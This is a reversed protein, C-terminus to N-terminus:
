DTTELIGKVSAARMADRIAQPTKGAFKGTADLFAALNTLTFPQQFGRIAVAAGVGGLVSGSAVGGGGALVDILGIVQKNATKHAKDVINEFAEIYVREENMLTAIRPDKALKRRLFDAASKFQDQKKNLDQDLKFSSTSRMDDIFRRLRLATIKTMQQPPAENVEKLLARAIRAKGRFFGVKFKDIVDNQLFQIYSKKNPVSMLDDGSEKLVNQVQRELDDIKKISFVAMNQSSGKLGRDLVERALTPNLEKGRATTRYAQTLDDISTKFITSMLREPLISTAAKGIVKAPGLVGNIALGLLFAQASSDYDGTQAATKVAFEGSEALTRVGFKGLRSARSAGGVLKAAKVGTGLPALFEAFQEAGFGIREAATEPTLTETALGTKKRIEGLRESFKKGGPILAPAALTAQGINQLTTGLGQAAGKVLGVIPTQKKTPSAFGELTNGRRRLGRIVDKAEMGEPAENIIKSVEQKSLFSM